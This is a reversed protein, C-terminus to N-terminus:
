QTAEEPREYLHVYVGRGDPPAERMVLIAEIARIHNLLHLPLKLVADNCIADKCVLRTQYRPRGCLVCGHLSPNRTPM